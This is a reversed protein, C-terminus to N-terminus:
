LLALVAAIAGIIGAIGVLIEFIKKKNLSNKNTKINSKEEINQVATGSGQNINVPSNDGTFINNIQPKNLEVKQLEKEKIEFYTKGKQTLAINSYLTAGTISETIKGSIFNRNLLEKWINIDDCIEFMKNDDQLFKSNKKCEEIIRELVKESEDDLDDFYM